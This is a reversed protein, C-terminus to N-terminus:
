LPLSGDFDSLGAFDPASDCLQARLGSSETTNRIWSPYVVDADRSVRLFILAFFAATLAKLAIM